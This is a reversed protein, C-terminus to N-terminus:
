CGFGNAELTRGGSADVEVPKRRQRLRRSGAGSAASAHTITGSRHRSPLGRRITRKSAAIHRRKAGCPHPVARRPPVKALATTALTTM